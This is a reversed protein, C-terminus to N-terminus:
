RTEDHGSAQVPVVRSTSSLFLRFLIIDRKIASLLLISTPREAPPSVLRSRKAPVFQVNEGGRKWGERGDRGGAASTAGALAIQGRTTFESARSFM